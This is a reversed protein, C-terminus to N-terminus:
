ARRTAPTRAERDTRPIHKTRAAAAQAGGPEGALPLEEGGSAVETAALGLAAGLSMEAWGDGVALADAITVEDGVTAGV